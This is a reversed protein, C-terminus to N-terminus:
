DDVAYSNPSQEEFRLNRTIKLVHGRLRKEMENTPLTKSKTSYPFAIEQRLYM